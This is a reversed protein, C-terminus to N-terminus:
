KAAGLQNSPNWIYGKSFMCEKWKQTLRANIANYDRTAKLLDDKPSKEPNEGPLTAAEWAEKTFGPAADLVDTCLEPRTPNSWCIEPPRKLPFVVHPPYRVLCSGGCARCDERRQEDTVGPKEFHRLYPKIPSVPKVSELLCGSLILALILIIFKKM